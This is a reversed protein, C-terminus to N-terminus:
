GIMWKPQILGLSVATMLIGIILVVAPSAISAWRILPHRSSRRKEPILNKAYLVAIGIAILVIALGLSFSLLLLLGLGVRGLAIAGLLLVLASECPVLGGSAGLAVLGKWSIEEAVHSHPHDHGHTHSHGHDHDHDHQHPRLRLRKYLMWGGIAAISIGSLTGLIETVREPVLYNFLFLTAVGLAFVVITHTFTVMAGLFAAHKLTGRAGVLYAAVITKGHGPTLAHASGLVFAACLALFIMWPTLRREHLFRSLYDGRTVTGAPAAKATLTAPAPAQRPAQPQAVQQIVPAPRVAAMAVAPAVPPTTWIMEARLDQPPAVTPDAPYQTLGHSVDQNTQSAQRLTVGHGRDIVIEKWGAREAYNGDEYTLKGGKADIRARTTVRMIPLNGAGDAIVAIASEFKPHVAAGDLAVNLNKLWVRAQTAAHSEIEAQPATREINWERLMEFTPIEALDLVYQLEVGNASPQLKAYHSVSFNGMPHAMLSATACVCVLLIKKTM